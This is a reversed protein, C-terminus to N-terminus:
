DALISFGVRGGTIWRKTGSLRAKSHATYPGEPLPRDIRIRRNYIPVECPRVVLESKRQDWWLCGDETLLRLAIRIRDVPPSLSSADRAEAEVRTVETPGYTKSEEPFVVASTSVSDFHYWTECNQGQQDQCTDYGPGADSESSSEHLSDDGGLGLLVNYGGLGSLSNAQDDGELRDSYESGGLHEFGSFTDNGAGTSTGRVLSADVGVPSTAFSLGDGGRSYQTPTHEGGDLIDDGLGPDVYDNDGLASIIDNGDHGTLANVGEDGVLVDNFLSGEVDDVEYLYDGTSPNANQRRLDIDVSTPHLRYSVLDQNSQYGASVSDEDTDSGPYFYDGSTNSGELRDRGSGGFLYSVSANGDVKVLDNGSGGVVTDSETDGVGGYISDNGDGGSVHDRDPGGDLTDNGSGGNVLDHGYQAEVTDSGGGACILDNGDLGYVKDDGGLAVIVDRKPTGRIVDEGRTGVRTAREGFCSASLKRGLALPTSQLAVYMCIVTALACARIGRM